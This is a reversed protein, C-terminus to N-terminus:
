SLKTNRKRPNTMPVTQELERVIECSFAADDIDLLYHEKAGEYPVGTQAGAMEERICDLKKVYVANDCLLLIPKDNVYVMYDGFMKRSRVAGVGAIQECVYQVYEPTCAM